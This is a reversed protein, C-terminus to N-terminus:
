IFFWFRLSIQENTSNPRNVCRTHISASATITRAISLRMRLPPLGMPSSPTNRLIPSLPASADKRQTRLSLGSHSDTNEFSEASSRAPLPSRCSQRWRTCSAPVSCQNRNVVNMPLGNSLALVIVFRQCCRPNKRKAKKCSSQVMSNPGSHWHQRKCYKRVECASSQNIERGM